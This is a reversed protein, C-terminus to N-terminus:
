DNLDGQPDSEDADVLRNWDLSPHGFERIMRQNAYKLYQMTTRDSVHGLLPTLILRVQGAMLGHLWGIGVGAPSDIQHFRLMAVTAEYVKEAAFYHRAAHPHWGEPCRTSTTWAKYLMQNSVPARKREGIWLRDITLGPSAKNERRKRSLLTPRVFTCYHEIREALDIPVELTRTNVSLSSAPTVKPGKVGHQVTVPVWGRALWSSKWVHRRPFCTTRLQNAESIRAGTRVMLEFILAKVPHRIRLAAIWRGVERSLPLSDLDFDTTRLKGFRSELEVATQGSTGLTQSELASTRFTPIHFKSRYGREHAWVLFSTAEDVYVNVTRRTLPRRKAGALGELLQLQYTGLIDDTYDLLRWDRTDSQNCWYFFAILRSAMGQRSALTQPRVIRQPNLALSWEACSREVLYRNAEFPYSGDDNLLVPVHQLKPVHREVFFGDIPLFKQM